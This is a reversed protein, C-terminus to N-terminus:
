SLCWKSVFNTAAQGIWIFSTLLPAIAPDVSSPADSTVPGTPNDQPLNSHVRPARYGPMNEPRMVGSVPPYLNQLEVTKSMYQRLMEDFHLEIRLRSVIDPSFLFRAILHYLDIAWM